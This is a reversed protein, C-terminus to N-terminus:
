GVLGRVARAIFSAMQERTVPDDHCFRDNAPPNCGKTVGAVALRDIDAAFISGDDDVFLDGAGRDRYGFARVLFAAMEGRTVARDPCFKDNLPPNCGKTIGAAALADIDAEHVSGADDTFANKGAPALELARVLFSAMQQRSVSDTPCYLTNDPPNCGKTIDLNAIYVIDGYHVSTGVDLFPSPATVDTIYPSVQEGQANLINYLWTASVQASRLERGVMGILRIVAGPPGSVMEAGTVVEWCRGLDCLRARVVSEPVGVQWTALPNAAAPAVSWPDDISRLHPSPSGGFVDEVDETAGGTSSSYYTPVIRSGGDVGPHTVVLGATADVVEGRWRAGNESQGEVTWAAYVQDATTRRLHCGCEALRGSGDSGGRGIATSVAYSRAAVAQAKLAESPWSLPMEAVGYLYEELGLRVTVDMTPGSTNPRIQIPGRAMTLETAWSSGYLGEAVVLGNPTGSAGPELDGWSLDFSCSGEGKTEPLPDGAVDLKVRECTTGDATTVLLRQGETVQMDPAVSGGCGSGDDRQCVELTIGGTVLFRMDTRQSAVNVALAQPQTLWSPIGANSAPTLDAGSYYTGIIDAVDRGEAAMARAGYQSMGVGHGWGGGDVTFDDAAAALAGTLLSVLMLSIVAAGHVARHLPRHTM